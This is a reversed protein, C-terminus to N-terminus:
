DSTEHNHGKLDMKIQPLMTSFLGLIDGIPDTDTSYLLSGEMAKETEDWLIPGINVPWWIPDDEQTKLKLTIM